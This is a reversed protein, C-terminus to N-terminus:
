QEVVNSHFKFLTPMGNTGSPLFSILLAIVYNFIGGVMFSASYSYSVGNVINRLITYDSM